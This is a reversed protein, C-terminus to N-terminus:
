CSLRTREVFADASWAHPEGLSIHADEIARGPRMEPQTPKEAESAILSRSVGTSETLSSPDTNNLDQRDVTHNLNLILNLNYSIVRPTFDTAM